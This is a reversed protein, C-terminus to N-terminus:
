PRGELRGWFRGGEELPMLLISRLLETTLRGPSPNEGEFQWETPLEGMIADLQGVAEKMRKTMEDIFDQPMRGREAAFVHRAFDGPLFLDDPLFANNHDIVFLQGDLTRWLLNPNGSSGYPRSFTRDTNRVWADFLLVCWRSREDTKDVHTVDYEQADAVHCSAFRVGSGLDLIGEVASTEVLEDPVRVQAMDPIPLGLLRGLRGAVWEACLAENGAKTGKVWYLNEDDAQCLFPQTAGQTSRRRIEVIQPRNM